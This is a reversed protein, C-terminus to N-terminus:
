ELYNGLRTGVFKIGFIACWTKCRIEVIVDLKMGEPYSEKRSFVYHFFGGRQHSALWNTQRCKIEVYSEGAFAFERVFFWDFLKWKGSLYCPFRNGSQFQRIWEAGFPARFVFRYAWHDNWNSGIRAKKGSRSCVNKAWSSVKWFYLHFQPKGEPSSVFQVNTEGWTKRSVYRSRTRYRSRFFSLRIESFGKKYIENPSFDIISIRLAIKRSFKSRLKKYFLEPFPLHKNPFINGLITTESQQFHRPANKYKQQISPTVDKRSYVNKMAEWGEGGRIKVGEAKTIFDRKSLQIERFYVKCM